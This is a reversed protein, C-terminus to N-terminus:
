LSAPTGLTDLCLGVAARSRDLVGALVARRARDWRRDRPRHPRTLAQSPDGAAVIHACGVHDGGVVDGDIFMIKFGVQEVLSVIDEPQWYQIFRKESFKETIWETGDGRKVGFTFIKGPELSDFINKMIKALDDKAFHQMVANAYIMDYGREIPDKLVDFLLANEGQERLNAVFQTSADSCQVNKGKSRMYSADRPTASGIEFVKGDDPLLALAADIWKLMPEHSAPDISPPTHSIYQQACKNYANITLKNTDKM